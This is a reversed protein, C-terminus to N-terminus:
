ENKLFDFKKVYEKLIQEWNSNGKERETHMILPCLTNIISKLLIESVTEGDIIYDTYAFEEYVGEKNLTKYHGIKSGKELINGVVACQILKIKNM